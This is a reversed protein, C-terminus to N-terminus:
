SRFKHLVPANIWRKEDIIWKGDFLPEAKKFIFGDWVLCPEPQWWDGPDGPRDSTNFNRIVLSGVGLRKAHLKAGDATRHDWCEGEGPLYNPSYITYNITRRKM